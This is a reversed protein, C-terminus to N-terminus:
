HGRGSVVEPTTRASRASAADALALLREYEEPATTNCGLEHDHKGLGHHDSSGTVVLDLRRAIARLQERAAPPHDQHDVELGALGLGALEAIASEPMSDAGHRGWPHALVTVGGAEEVIRVMEVLPAAYRNVYAPRGPNLYHQFATNRDTVVGLAVLADAVHP